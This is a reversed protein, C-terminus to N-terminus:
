RLLSKIEQALTAVHRVQFIHEHEGPIPRIELQPGAYPEWGNHKAAPNSAFIEETRNAKLLVVRGSYTAPRYERSMRGNNALEASLSSGEDSAADIGQESLFRNIAEPDPTAEPFASLNYSDILLVLEVERGQQKLQQAMEFAVV